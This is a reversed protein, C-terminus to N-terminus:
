SALFGSPPDYTQDADNSIIEFYWDSFDADNTYPSAAVYIKGNATTDFGTVTPNTGNAPDGSDIWVGNISIWIEGTTGDIAYGITDGASWKMNTSTFVVDGTDRPLAGAFYNSFSNGTAGVYNTLTVDDHAGGLTANTDVQPSIKVEVYRKEGDDVGVSDLVTHYTGATFNTAKTKDGSLSVNSGKNTDSWLMEALSGGGGGSLGPIKRVGNLFASVVGSHKLSMIRKPNIVNALM